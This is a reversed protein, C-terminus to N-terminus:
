TQEPRPARYHSRPRRTPSTTACRPSCTPTRRDDDGCRPRPANRPPRRNGTSSGAASCSARSRRRPLGAARHVGRVHHARQAARRRLPGQLVPLHDLVGPRQRRRRVPRGAALDDGPGRPPRPRPQRARGGATSSGGSSRSSRSSCSAAHHQDAPGQDGVRQDARGAAIPHVVMLAAFVLGRLLWKSM